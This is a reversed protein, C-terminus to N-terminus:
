VRHVLGSSHMELRSLPPPSFERTTFIVNQCLILIQYLLTYYQPRQDKLVHCVSQTFFHSM